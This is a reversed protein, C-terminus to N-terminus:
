TSKQTQISAIQASGPYLFVHPPILHDLLGNQYGSVKATSNNVLPNVALKSSAM